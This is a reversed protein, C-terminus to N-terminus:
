ADTAQYGSMRFAAWNGALVAPYKPAQGPVVCTPIAEIRADLNPHQFFPISMRAGGANTRPPNIVRHATAVWRDNTWKALLDGLNVVFGGPIVPVDLWEGERVKVQLGGVDSDQYLITLSGFDTHESQRIQGPPPATPQPPYYNATLYSCHRDFKDAFWDEPLELARAMLAMLHAALDSMVGLYSHWVAPMEAPTPPWVNPAYGQVTEPAYGAAVMLSPHEWRAAEYSEVLDIRGGLGARDEPATYGRYRSPPSACGARKAAQDQTFFAKSVQYVADVAAPDVGHNVIVFFGIEECAVGIEKAVEAGREGTSGTLDIVPISTTM